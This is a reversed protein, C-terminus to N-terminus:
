ITLAIGTNRVITFAGAVVFLLAIASWHLHLRPPERHRMVESYWYLFWAVAVPAAVTVLANLRWATALNGHLLHYLARTGGCGPCLLHTFAYFPCVPYFHYDQPPFSYLVACVLALMGLLYNARRELSKSNM